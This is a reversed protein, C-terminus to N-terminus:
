WTCRIRHRGRRYRDPSSPSVKPSRMWKVWRREVQRSSVRFGEVLRRVKAAVDIHHRHHIRNQAFLLPTFLGAIQARDWETRIMTMLHEVIQALFGVWAIRRNATELPHRFYAADLQRQLHGFVQVATIAAIPIIFLVALPQGKVTL